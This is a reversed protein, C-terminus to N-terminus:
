PAFNLLRNVWNIDYFMRDLYRTLDRCNRRLKEEEGLLIIGEGCTLEEPMAWIGDRITFARIGVNSKFNTKDDLSYGFFDFLPKKGDSWLISLFYDMNLLEERSIRGSGNTIFESILRISDKKPIDAASSHKYLKGRPNTSSIPYANTFPM